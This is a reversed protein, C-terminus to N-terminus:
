RVGFASFDGNREAASPVYTTAAYGLDPALNVAGCYLQNVASPFPLNLITALNAANTSGDGPFRGGRESGRSWSDLHLSRIASPIDRM